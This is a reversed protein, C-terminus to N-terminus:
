CRFAHCYRLQHGPPRPQGGSSRFAANAAHASLVHDTNSAPAAAPDGPGRDDFGREAGAHLAALDMVPHHDCPPSGPSPNPGVPGPLEPVTHSECPCCGSKPQHQAWPTARGLCTDARLLAALQCPCRLPGGTTVSMVAVVIATLPRM